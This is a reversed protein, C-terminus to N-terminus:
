LALGTFSFDTGPKSSSVAVILMSAARLAKARARM